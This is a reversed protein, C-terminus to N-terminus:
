TTSSPSTMRACSPARPCPRLLARPSPCASSTAPPARARTPPGGGGSLPGGGAGRPATQLLFAPPGPPCLLTYARVPTLMDALVERFVPILAHDKALVRAEDRTPACERM